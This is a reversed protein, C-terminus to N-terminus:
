GAGKARHSRSPARLSVETLWVVRRDADPCYWVRGGGTVEYQWQEVVRGGVSRSGLEGRLRKQRASRHRPDDSLADFCTRAATPVNQVLKEWDAAAARDAFRLEWRGPAAPPAVRDGREPM